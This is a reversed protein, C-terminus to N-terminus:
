TISQRACHRLKQGEFRAGQFRAGQFRVGKFRVGSFRDNRLWDREFGNKRSIYSQSAIENAAGTWRQRYFRM